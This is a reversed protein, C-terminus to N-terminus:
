IINAHSQLALLWHKNLHLNKIKIFFIGIIRIIAFYDISYKKFKLYFFIALLYYM